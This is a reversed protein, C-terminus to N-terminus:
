GGTTRVQTRARGQRQRGVPLLQDYAHQKERSQSVCRLREEVPEIASAFRRALNQSEAVAAITTRRAADERKRNERVTSVREGVVAAAHQKAHEVPIRDITADGAAHQIGDASATSGGYSGQPRIWADGADTNETGPVLRVEGREQSM